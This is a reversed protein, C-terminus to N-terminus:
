SAVALSTPPNPVRLDLSFQVSQSWDSVQGNRAVTRLAVTFQRIAGPEAQVSALTSVDFVYQNTPNFALPLAVAAEGNVQIEYGAYDASGFASGDTYTTPGVWSLNKAM